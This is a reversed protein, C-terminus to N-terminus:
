FSPHNPLSLSTESSLSTADSTNPVESIETIHHVKAVIEYEDPSELFKMVSGQVGLQVLKNVNRYLKEYTPFDEETKNSLLELM